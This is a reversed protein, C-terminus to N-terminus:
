PNLIVIRMKCIFFPIELFYKDLIIRKDDDDDTVIAVSYASVGPM